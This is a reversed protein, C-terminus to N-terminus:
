TTTIGDWQWDACPHAPQGSPSVRLTAVMQSSSGAAVSQIRKTPTTIRISTFVEGTQVAMSLADAPAIELSLPSEICAGALVSWFLAASVLNRGM